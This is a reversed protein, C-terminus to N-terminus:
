RRPEFPLKEELVDAIVDSMGLAPHNNDTFVPRGLWQGRCIGDACFHDILSIRRVDPGQAQSFADYLLRFQNRHAELLTDVSWDRGFAINSALTQPVNRPAAYFPEVLVVKKGAATLAEVTSRLEAGIVSPAEAADAWAGNHLLGGETIGYRWISVLIVEEIEPSTHVLEFMSKTFAECEVSVVHEVPPCAAQFTVLGARGNRALWTSFAPALARAHSDGIVVVRPEADAEGIPCMSTLKPRTGQCGSFETPLDSAYNVALMAEEPFRKPLGDGKMVFLAAGMTAL